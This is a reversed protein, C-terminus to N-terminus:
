DSDNDSSLDSEGDHLKQLERLSLKKKRPKIYDDVVLEELLLIYQALVTNILPEPLYQIETAVARYVQLLKIQTNVLIHPRPLQNAVVKAALDKLSLPAAKLSLSKLTEQRYAWWGRTITIIFMLTMSESLNLISWTMATPYLQGWFEPRLALFRPNLPRFRINQGKLKHTQFIERMKATTDIASKDQRDSWAPPCPLTAPILRMQRVRRRVTKAQKTIINLELDGPEM